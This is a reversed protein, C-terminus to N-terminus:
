ALRRGGQQRPADGQAVWVVDDRFEPPVDARQQDRGARVSERRILRPM